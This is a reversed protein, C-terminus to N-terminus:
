DPRSRIMVLVLLVGTTQLLGYLNPPENSGISCSSRCDILVVVDFLSYVRFLLRLLCYDVKSQFCPLPALNVCCRGAVEGTQSDESLRNM